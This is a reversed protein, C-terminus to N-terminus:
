SRGNAWEAYMEARKRSDPGTFTVVYCAGDGDHDIAEARWTDPIQKDPVVVYEM